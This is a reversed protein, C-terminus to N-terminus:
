EYNNIIRIFFYSNNSLKNNKKNKKGGTNISLGQRQKRNNIITQLPISISKNNLLYSIILLLLVVASITGFIEPMLFSM